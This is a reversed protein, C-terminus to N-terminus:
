TSPLFLRQQQHCYVLKIVSANKFLEYANGNLRQGLTSLLCRLAEGHFIVLLQTNMRAVAITCLGQYIRDGCAVASEGGLPVRCTFGHLIEEFHAQHAIDSLYQGQWAGLDREMLRKEISVELQLLQQCLNATAVARGLPSSIIADINYAKIQEALNSSQKKGLETLESDLQGQFRHGKNWKTEGHRALYFVTQM